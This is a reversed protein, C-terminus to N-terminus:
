AAVFSKQEAKAARTQGTFFQKKRVMYKKGMSSLLGHPLQAM